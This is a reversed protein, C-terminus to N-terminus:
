TSSSYSLHICPFNPFSSIKSTGKPVLQKRLAAEEIRMKPLGMEIAKTMGGKNEVEKNLKHTKQRENLFTWARSYLELLNHYICKWEM